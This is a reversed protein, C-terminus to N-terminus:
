TMYSMCIMQGLHAINLMSLMSTHATSKVRSATHAGHTGRTHGEASKRYTGRTALSADLCAAPPRSGVTRGAIGSSEALARRRRPSVRGSCFFFAAAIKRVRSSVDVASPIAADVEVYGPGVVVGVVRLVLLCCSCMAGVDLVLVCCWCGVGVGLVLVYWWCEVGDRLVLVSCWCGVGVGLM